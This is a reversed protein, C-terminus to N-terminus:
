SGSIPLNNNQVCTMGKLVVKYVEEYICVEMQKRNGILSFEQVQKEINEFIKLTTLLSSTPIGYRKNKLEMILKMEFKDVFM